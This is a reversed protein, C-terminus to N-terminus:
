LPCGLKRLIADFREPDATGAQNHRRILNEKELQERAKVLIDAAQAAPVAVAGDSDAIIMDGPNVVMGACCVPVNIEGPGTKSPGRHTHGKAYVPIEGSAWEALDRIAGDVIFGAINRTIATTKILGGILAQTVDGGGDIVIIDGPQAMFLAKHIMLNDGPCVRVTIAPGCIIRNVDQHYRQLGITGTSRGLCDGIVAAPIDRYAAVLEASINCQRPAIYYGAPWGQQETSM